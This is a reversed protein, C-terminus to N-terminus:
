RVGQYVESTWYWVFLLSSLLMYRSPALFSLFLLCLFFSVANIVDLSMFLSPLDISSFLLSVWLWTGLLRQGQFMSSKTKIEEWSSQFRKESLFRRLLENERWIDRYIEAFKTGNQSMKVKHFKSQSWGILTWFSSFPITRKQVRQRPM